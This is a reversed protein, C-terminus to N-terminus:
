AKYSNARTDKGMYNIIFGEGKGFVLGAPDSHFTITLDPTSSSMKFPSTGGVFQGLIRTTVEDGDLITLMDSDSLNLSILSLSLSLCHALPSHHPLFHSFSRTMWATQHTM